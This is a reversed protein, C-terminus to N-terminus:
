EFNDVYWTGQDRRLKVKHGNELKIEPDDGPPIQLAGPNELAEVLGRLQAEVAARLQPTLLRLLAPYSRRKLIDRLSALAEEPTAGGGPLMGASAIWFKGDKLTLAAEAGDEFHLRAVATIAGLGARIEKAQDALEAKSSAVAKEVEAKSTTAKSRSSLMAYIADADGKEAAQAYAEAAEKPDPVAGERVCGVSAGSLALSVLVSTVRRCTSLSRGSQV